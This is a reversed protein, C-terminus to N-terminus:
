QGQVGTDDGEVTVDGQHEIRAEEHRVTDTVRRTEQVARKGLSVEGTEVTQRSVNVQEASVPVRITGGEGIPTDSVQGSGARHEIYVEEHTVPVDISQQETVVEKRIGVEGTQVPQKYVQLQEELLQLHRAEGTDAGTRGTTRAIGRSAGYGGYQSLLTSAEQMRKGGTVAVISRGAEYERQYSRADEEPMGMGVLAHYAGGEAYDEGTFFSKLGALFGGSSTEQGSYSIQDDSFGSQRLAEIAQQAQADDSFVGVVTSRDTTTM